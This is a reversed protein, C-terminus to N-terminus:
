LGGATLPLVVTAAVKDGGVVLAQDLAATGPPLGPHWAKLRYSGPPVHDLRVRGDAASLGFHPTEVVVVWAVMQDHINCGLVAVGPRDFVVPNAPVGSYLKLEFPKTPSLSYVHHRVKDRNPFHVASGTSVVSVRQTFRKDQQEIEVGGQPKSAARAAASELYVVAELLPKGDQGNLQVDVTTAGAALCALCAALPLWRPAPIPAPTPLHPLTM